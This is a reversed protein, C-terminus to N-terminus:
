FELRALIRFMRLRDSSTVALNVEFFRKTADMM